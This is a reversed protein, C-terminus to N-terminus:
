GSCSQLLCRISNRTTMTCGRARIVSPAAAPLVRVPKDPHTPLSENRAHTEM